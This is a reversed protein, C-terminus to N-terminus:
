EMDQRSWPQLTWVGVNSSMGDVIRERGNGVAVNFFILFAVLGEISGTRLIVSPTCLGAAIAIASYCGGAAGRASNAFALGHQEKPKARMAARIPM